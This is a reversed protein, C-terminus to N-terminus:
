DEDEDEDEEEVGELLQLLKEYEINSAELARLL